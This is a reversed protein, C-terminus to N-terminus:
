ASRGPQATSRNRAAILAAAGLAICLPSFWRLNNRRFEPTTPWWGAASGLLGGVGRALLVIGAGKACLDALTLSRGPHLRPRAAIAGAALATLVGVGISLAAAPPRSTGSTGVVNRVFATADPYPWTSGTAWVFHVTAVGALAAAGTASALREARGHPPPPTARPRLASLLARRARVGRALKRRVLPRQECRAALRWLHASVVVVPASIRREHVNLM